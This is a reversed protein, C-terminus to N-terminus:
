IRLKNYKGGFKFAIYNFMTQVRHYYTHENVVTEYGRIAIAEREKENNLYYDILEIMEKDNRYTILHEKNVFLEELGNNKIRNTLLFCGSAMVEFLRMNIDNIISSNFGIKSASYIEAMKKFDAIGIFSKPYKENLL